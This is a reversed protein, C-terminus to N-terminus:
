LLAAAAVEAVVERLLVVGVCRPVADHRLLRVAAHLQPAFRQGGHRVVQLLDDLLLGLWSRRAFALVWAAHLSAAGLSKGGRAAALLTAVILVVVRFAIKRM